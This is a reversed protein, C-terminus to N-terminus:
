SSVPSNKQIQNGTTLLQQCVELLAAVDAASSDRLEEEIKQRRNLQLKEETQLRVRTLAEFYPVQMEM